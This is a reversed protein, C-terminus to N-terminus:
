RNRTQCKFLDSIEDWLEPMELAKAFEKVWRKIHQTDLNRHSQAIARIDEIDRPRHAVAKMIILDEPTPIRFKINELKCLRSRKIADSEFPLMGLALDVNIGSKKHSLLIVHSKKAFDVADKIRPAFGFKAAEHIFKEIDGHKLIIVADIDATFRPKGLLSASIGGIVIGKIKKKSLLQFLAKLPALFSDKIKSM